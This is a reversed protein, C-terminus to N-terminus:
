SGYDGVSDLFPLGIWGDPAGSESTYVVRGRVLGEFGDEARSDRM